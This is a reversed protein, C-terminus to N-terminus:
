DEEQFAEDWEESTIGSMIFERQDNSLYPIIDQIKRPSGEEYELLDEEKVPIDLTRTIGSLQSTKTIKM